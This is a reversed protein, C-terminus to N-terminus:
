VGLGETEGLTLKPAVMGVLCVTAEMALSRSPLPLRTREPM